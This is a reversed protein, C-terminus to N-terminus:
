SDWNKNKEDKGGTCVYFKRNQWIGSKADLISFPNEGFMERLNNKKVVPNGFLDLQEM